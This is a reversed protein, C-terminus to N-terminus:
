GPACAASWLAEVDREVIAIRAGSDGIQASLELASLRWNYIVLGNRTRAAGFLAFYFDLSNRGIFGILTPQQAVRMSLFNGVRNAIRDFEAFSVSRAPTRLATRDPDHRAWYEPYQGVSRIEPYVWM